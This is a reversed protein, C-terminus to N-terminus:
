QSLTIRLSIWSRIYLSGVLELSEGIAVVVLILNVTVTAANSAAKAVVQKACPTMMPEGVLPVETERPELM